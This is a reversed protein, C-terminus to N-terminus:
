SFALETLVEESMKSSTESTFTPVCSPVLSRPSKDRTGALLGPSWTGEHSGGMNENFFDLRLSWIKTGAHSSNKPCTGAVLHFYVLRQGTNSTGHGREFETERHYHIIIFNKYVACIM